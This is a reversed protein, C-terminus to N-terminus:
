KAKKQSDKVFKRIALARDRAVLSKQAEMEKIAEHRDDMMKSVTDYMALAQQKNGVFVIQDERRVYDIMQNIALLVFPSRLFVVEGIAFKLCSSMDDYIVFDGIEPKKM